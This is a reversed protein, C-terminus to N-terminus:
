TLSSAPVAIMITSSWGRLRSASSATSAEGSSEIWRAVDPESARRWASSRGYATMRRSTMIGSMSPKSDACATKAHLTDIPGTLM